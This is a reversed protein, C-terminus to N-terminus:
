EVKLDRFTGMARLPLSEQFFSDTTRDCLTSTWSVGKPVQNGIRWRSEPFDLDAQFHSELTKAFHPYSASAIEQRRYAFFLEGRLEFESNHVNGWLCAKSM